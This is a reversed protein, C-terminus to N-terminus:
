CCVGRKVIGNDEVTQWRIMATLRTWVTCSMTRCRVIDDPTATISRMSKVVSNVYRVIDYTAAVVSVCFNFKILNRRCNVVDHSVRVARCNAHLTVPRCRVVDSSVPRCQGTDNLRGIDNSMTRWPVWRQRRIENATHVGSYNWSCLCCNNLM